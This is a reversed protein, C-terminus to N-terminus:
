IFDGITKKNNIYNEFNINNYNYTIMSKESLFKKSTKKYRQILFDKFYMNEKFKLLKRANAHVFIGELSFIPDLAWYQFLEEKLDKNIENEGIFELISKMNNSLPLENHCYEWFGNNDISQNYKYHLTLFDVIFNWMKKVYDNLIKQKTKNLYKDEGILKIFNKITLFTASFGTSELPEAFGQANGNLLYNEGCINEYQGAPFPIVRHKKIKPNDSLFQEIAKEKTVFDSCFVYGKGARESTDIEWEWGFSKRTSVTYSKIEEIGIEHQGVVAYDCPLNNKFSIFKTKNAKAIVGNFGSCDIYFDSYHKENNELILNKIKNESEFEVNIVKKSIYKIGRRTAIKKLFSVFKLNDIQYSFHNYCFNESSLPSLNNKILYCAFTTEENDMIHENINLNNQITGSDFTYNYNFDKKVWDRFNIGMKHIPHVEQYFENIDIKAHEFIFTPLDLIGSEGVGITPIDEDNIIEYEILPNFYQLTMATFHGSLGSGIITIKNM